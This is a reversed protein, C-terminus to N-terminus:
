GYSTNDPFRSLLHLLHMLLKNLHRYQLCTLCQHNPASFYPSFLTQGPHVILAAIEDSSMVQSTDSSDKKSGPMPMELIKDIDLDEVQEEMVDKIDQTFLLM